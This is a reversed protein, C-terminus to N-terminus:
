RGYEIGAHAYDGQSCLDLCIEVTMSDSGYMHHLARTDEPELVCGVYKYNKDGPVVTPEVTPIPRTSTPKPPCVNKPLDPRLGFKLGLAKQISEENTYITDGDKQFRGFNAYFNELFDEDCHEYVKDCTEPDTTICVPFLKSFDLEVLESKEKGCSHCFGPPILYPDFPALEALQVKLDEQCKSDVIAEKELFIKANKAIMAEILDQYTREDEAWQSDREEISRWGYHGL